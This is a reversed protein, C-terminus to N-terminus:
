EKDEEFPDKYKVLKDMSELKNIEKNLNKTEAKLNSIQKDILESAAEDFPKAGQDICYFRKISGNLELSDTKFPIIEGPSCLRRAEEELDKKVVFSSNPELIMLDGNEDVGYVRKFNVEKGMGSGGVM